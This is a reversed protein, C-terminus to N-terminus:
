FFGPGAVALCAIITSAAFAPVAAAAAAAAATCFDNFNWNTKALVTCSQLPLGRQLSPVILVGKPHPVPHDFSVTLQLKKRIPRVIVFLPM